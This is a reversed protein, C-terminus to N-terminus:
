SVMGHNIAYIRGKDTLWVYGNGFGILEANFLNQLHYDCIIRSVGLNTHITRSETIDQGREYNLVIARMIMVALDNNREPRAKDAPTFPNDGIEPKKFIPAQHIARVLNDFSLEYDDPNSFDINLKSQLFTPVDRSSEQKILPIVKNSDIKRMLESTIIMKEYGVGGSGNNAKEVYRETCIMLVREAASLSTEMFHPIDDGASLEWQDLVADVGSNRLRTSLDLVWEKHDLSDHSYSVFVKPASM